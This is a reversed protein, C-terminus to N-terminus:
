TARTRPEHTAGGRAGDPHPPQRDARHGLPLRHVVRAATVDHDYTAVLRERAGHDIISQYIPDLAFLPDGPFYMQTIM